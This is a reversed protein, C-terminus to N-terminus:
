TSSVNLGKLLGFFKHSDNMGKWAAQFDVAQIAEDPMETPNSEKAAVNVAQLTHRTCNHQEPRRKEWQLTSYLSTVRAEYATWISDLYSGCIKGRVASATDSSCGCSMGFPAVKFLMTRCIPPEKPMACILIYITWLAAFLVDDRILCTVPLSGAVCCLSFPNILLQHIM